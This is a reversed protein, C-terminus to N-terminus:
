FVNLLNTLFLTISQPFSLQSETQLLIEMCKYFNRKKKLTKKKQLAYFPYKHM